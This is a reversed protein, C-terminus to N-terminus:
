IDFSELTLFGNLSHNHEQEHESKATFRLVQCSSIAKLYGKCLILAAM